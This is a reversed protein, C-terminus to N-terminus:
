VQMTITFIAGQNIVINGNFGARAGSLNITGAGTKVLNGSGTTAGTQINSNAANAVTITNDGSNFNIAGTLFTTSSATGITINASNLTLANSATFSGTLLLTGSNITTPSNNGLSNANTIELTGSNITTQGTYSSVGSLTLVGSSAHTLTGTGSIANNVTLPDLRNFVLAGNNVVNGTGLRGSFVGNGVQLTGSNITTTGNYNNAGALIWTGTGSKTLNVTGVFASLGGAFSGNGAGTLTLDFGNSAINNTNSMTFTGSNASISSASGLSIAGAYTVTGDTTLAGNGGVGTGNLTVGESGIAVGNPLHLTAGSLIQTGIFTSGLATNSGAVLTGNYIVTNGSYTNNGTLTVTNTNSKSITGLGSVNNSLIYNSTLDFGLSGNNM